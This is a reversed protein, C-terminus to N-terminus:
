SMRIVGGMHSRIGVAGFESCIENDINAVYAIPMNELLDERDAEWEDPYNSVYLFTLMRGIETKNKIVHFVLAGTEEEFKHIRNKETDNLSYLFGDVSAYLEGNQKFDEIVKPFLNLMVMRTLAEQIMKDKEM